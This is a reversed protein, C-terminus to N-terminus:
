ELEGVAETVETPGDYDRDPPKQLTDLVEEPADGDRAHGVLDEKNAPYNVGSLHKQIDIPNAAMVLGGKIHTWGIRHRRRQRTQTRRMM